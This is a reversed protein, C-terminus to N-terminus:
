FRCSRFGEEAFAGSRFDGRASVSGLQFGGDLHVLTEAVGAEGSQAEAQEVAAEAGVVFFDRHAAELAALDIYEDGRGDDFDADVHGVGGDHDDLVGLAEPEGLKM